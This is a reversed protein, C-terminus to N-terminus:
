VRGPALGSTGLPTAAVTPREPASMRSHRVVIITADVIRALGNAFNAPGSYRALWGGQAGLLVFDISETRSIEAIAKVPDGPLVTAKVRIDAAELKKRFPLVYDNEIEERIQRVKEAYVIYGDYQLPHLRSEVVVLHASRLTPVLKVAEDVAAESSRSGDLPILANTYM